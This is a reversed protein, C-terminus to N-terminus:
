TPKNSVMCIKHKKPLLRVIQVPIIGMYDNQDYHYQPDYNKVFDNVNAEKQIDDDYIGQEVKQFYDKITEYEPLASKLSFFDPREDEIVECMKRVSTSLFPNEEYNTQFEDFLDNLRVADFRDGVYIDQVGRMLGTQLITLGLGFM